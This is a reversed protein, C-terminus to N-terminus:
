VTGISARIELEALHQRGFVAVSVESEMMQEASELQPHRRLSAGECVFTWKGRDVSLCPCIFSTLSMVAALSLIQLKVAYYIQIMGDFKYRVFIPYVSTQSYLDSRNVNTNKTRYVCVCGSKSYVFSCRMFRSSM